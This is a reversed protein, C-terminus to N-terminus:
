ELHLMDKIVVLVHMYTGLLRDIFHLLAHDKIASAGYVPFLATALRAELVIGLGCLEKECYVSIGQKANWAFDKASVTWELMEGKEM